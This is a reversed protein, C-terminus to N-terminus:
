EENSLFVVVMGRGIHTIEDSAVDFARTVITWGAAKLTSRAQALLSYCVDPDVSYCNVDFSNDVNVTKNDYASHEIEENCWFTFFTSPYEEEPALSGQRIVPYKFSELISILNDEM